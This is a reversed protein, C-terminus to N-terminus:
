LEEGDRSSSSFSPDSNFSSSASGAWSIRLSLCAQTHLVLVYLPFLLPNPAGFGGFRFLDVCWPFGGGVEPRVGNPNGGSAPSGTSEGMGTSGAAASSAALEGM